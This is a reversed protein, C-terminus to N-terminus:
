PQQSTPAVRGVEAATGFNRFFEGALRRATGEILRGGIQALKGGIQSTVAYRILTTSGEQPELTIEARGKAFGAAGGSGEGSITYSVPPNLDALIVVGAFRASVPGVKAKVTAALTGDERWELSECGPISARLVEVDNLAAWVADRDAAVAYEGSIMM